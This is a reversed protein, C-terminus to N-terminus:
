CQDQSGVIEGTLAVPNLITQANPSHAIARAHLSALQEPTADSTVHLRYRIEPFNVPANSGIGLFGRLDLTADLDLRVSELQVGEATAGAVFAVMMCAGLGSLLLEQPNPGHNLGMLQRPEDVKWTFSRSVRHPGVRMPKAEARSRTGSEWDLCVGYAMVAEQPAATVENVFESLAATPLSNRM